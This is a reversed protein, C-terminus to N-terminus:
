QISVVCMVVHEPGMSGANIVGISVVNLVRVENLTDKDFTITPSTSSRKEHVIYGNLSDHVMNFKISAYDYHPIGRCLPSGPRSVCFDLSTVFVSFSPRLMQQQQSACISSAYLNCSAAFCLVLVPKCM